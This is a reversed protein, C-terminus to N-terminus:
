AAPSGQAKTPSNPDETLLDEVSEAHPTRDLWRSLLDLDTCSAIRERAEHPIPVGRAELVAMAPKEAATGEDTIAPLNDPGIVLPYTRQKM